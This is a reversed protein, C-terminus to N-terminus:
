WGKATRDAKGKIKLSDAGDAWLNNVNDGRLIMNWRGM